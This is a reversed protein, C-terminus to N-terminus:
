YSLIYSFVHLVHLLNKSQNHRSQHDHGGHACHCRAHFDLIGRAARMHVLNILNKSTGKIIFALQGIDLVARVVLASTSAGISLSNRFCLSQTLRAAGINGAVESSLQLVPVSSITLDSAIGHRGQAFVIAELRSTQSITVIQDDIVGRNSQSSFAIGIGAEDHLNGAISHDSGLLAGDFLVLLDGSVLMISITIALGSAFVDRVILLGVVNGDALLHGVGDIGANRQRSGIIVLEEKDDVISQGLAQSELRAGDIHIMIFDLVVVLQSRIGIVGQEELAILGMGGSAIMGELNSDLIGLSAGALGDIHHILSFQVLFGLDAFDRVGVLGGDGVGVIRFM